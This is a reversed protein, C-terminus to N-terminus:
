AGPATGFKCSPRSSMFPSQNNTRSHGRRALVPFRQTYGTIIMGLRKGRRSLLCTPCDHATNSLGYLGAGLRWVPNGSQSAARGDAIAKNARRNDFGNNAIVLGGFLHKLNKYEFPPVLLGSAKLLM